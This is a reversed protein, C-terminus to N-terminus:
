IEGVNTGCGEVAKCRGEGETVVDVSTGDEIEVGM